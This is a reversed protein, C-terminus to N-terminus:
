CRVGSVQDKEQPYPRHPRPEEGEDMCGERGAGGPGTSEEDCGQVGVFDPGLGKGGPVEGGGSRVTGSQIRCMRPVGLDCRVNM